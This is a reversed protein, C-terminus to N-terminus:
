NRISIVARTGSESHFTINGKLQMNILMHVITMGLSKVMTPDLDVPLGVGDDSVEIRIGDGENELTLDIVGTRDGPFAHKFANILLENVALGCPIAKNVPLFSTEVRTSLTIREPANCHSQYVEDSMVKLYDGFDIRSLDDTKYLKEHILAMATIRSRADELNSIAEESQLQEAQLALLSVIIQFNNKVRHHVEKLLVEKEALSRSVAIESLKRKTIDRNSAIVASVRGENDYEPALICDLWMGGPHKFEIRDPRGTEFVRDISQEMMGEMDKVINMETITKGVSATGAIGTAKELAPSAYLIRFERDFRLIIDPSNDALARFREESVRLESEIALREIIQRSAKAYLTANKSALAQIDMSRKHQDKLILRFRSILLQVLFSIGILASLIIIVRNEFATKGTRMQVLFGSHHLWGMTLYAALCATMFFFFSRRGLLLASLVITLAYLLMAPADIGGIYNGFVASIFIIVPPIYASIKWLGRVMMWVGVMFFVSMLGLFMVTDPPIINFQWVVIAALTLPIALISVVLLVMRVLNEQIANDPDTEKPATLRIWINRVTNISPM